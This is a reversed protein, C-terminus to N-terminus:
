DGDKAPIRVIRDTAPYRLVREEFRAGITRTRRVVFGSLAEQSVRETGEPVEPDEITREGPTLRALTQRSWDVHPGRRRGVLDVVLDRGVTRARVAVPFPLPNTIVLDVSPWVVTADLGLPIYDSPRSHPTHVPVDLGGLFAAAHLTSAVQCTGGGVGPVMEGNQIEPAVRFGASTRRPGVRDNFSLSGGAELVAGDLREAALRVNHARNGGRGFRTVYSSVVTTFPRAAAASEVLAPAEVTEVPLEIVVEEGRLAAVIAEGAEVVRLRVGPRAPEALRGRDDLVLPTADRDVEARLGALRASLVRRDVAVPWPLEVAGSSASRLDALDRLPHGSRGLRRLRSATESLDIRGGIQRRTMVQLVPGARLGIETDLWEEVRPALAARPDHTRPLRRSAVRIGALTRTDLHLWAWVGAPTGVVILPLAVAVLRVWARSM